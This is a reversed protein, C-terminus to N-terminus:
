KKRSETVAFGYVMFKWVCVSCWISFEYNIQSKYQKAAETNKGAKETKTEPKLSFIVSLSLIDLSFPFAKGPIEKKWRCSHTLWTFQSIISIEAVNATDNRSSFQSHNECLSSTPSYHIQIAKILIPNRLFIPNRQM